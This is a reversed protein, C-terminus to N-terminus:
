MSFACSTQPSKVIAKRLKLSTEPPKAFFHVLLPMWTCASGSAEAFSGRLKRWSGGCCLKACFLVLSLPFPALFPSLCPFVCLCDFMAEALRGGVKRSVFPRSVLFRRLRGESSGRTEGGAEAFSGGAEAPFFVTVM